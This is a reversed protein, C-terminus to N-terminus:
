RMFTAPGYRAMRKKRRGAGSSSMLGSKKWRATTLKSSASASDLRCENMMMAVLWAPSSM